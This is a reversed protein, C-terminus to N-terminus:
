MRIWDGTNFWSVDETDPAVPLRSAADDWATDETDGGGITKSGNASLVLYDVIPKTGPRTYIPPGFCDADPWVALVKEKSSPTTMPIDGEGEEGEQCGMQLHDYALPHEAEYHAVIADLMVGWSPDYPVEFPCRLCKLNGAHQMFMKQDSPDSMQIGGTTRPLVEPQRTTMQIGGVGLEPNFQPQLNMHASDEVTRERESM